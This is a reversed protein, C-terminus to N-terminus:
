WKTTVHYISIRRSTPKIICSVRCIVGNNNGILKREGWQGSLPNQPQQPCPRDGIVLQDEHYFHVAIIVMSIALERDHKQKIVVM